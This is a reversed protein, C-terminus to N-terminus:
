ARLTIPHSLRKGACLMARNDGMVGVNQARGTCAFIV